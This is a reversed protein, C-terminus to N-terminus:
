QGNDRETARKREEEALRSYHLDNDLEHKVFRAFRDSLDKFGDRLEQLDRKNQEKMEAMVNNQNELVGNQGELMETHRTSESELKNVRDKLTGGGNPKPEAVIFEVDPAMAVVRKLAQFNERVTTIISRRKWIAVFVGGFTGGAVCAKYVADLIELSHMEPEQLTSGTSDASDL